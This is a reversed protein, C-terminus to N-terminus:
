TACVGDPAENNLMLTEAAAEKGAPHPYELGPEQCKHEEDVDAGTGENAGKM